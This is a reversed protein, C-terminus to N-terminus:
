DELASNVLIDGVMIIDTVAIRDHIGGSDVVEVIDKDTCTVEGHVVRLGLHYRVSVGPVLIKKIKKFYRKDKKESKRIAANLRAAAGSM